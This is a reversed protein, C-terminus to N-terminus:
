LRSLLETKKADFEETTLLGQDRLEGLQRIQDPISAEPKSPPAPTFSPPSTVASAGAAGNLKAAFARAPAGQKPDLAEVFGFGPGEVLLFLERSDKKKRLGFALPGTLILRTATVRKDIAGATDVTARAGALKFSESGHHIRGYGFSVSGLSAKADEAHRQRNEQANQHRAEQAKWADKFGM